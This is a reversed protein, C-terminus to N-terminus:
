PITRSTTTKLCAAFTVIDRKQVLVSIDFFSSIQTKLITVLISPM